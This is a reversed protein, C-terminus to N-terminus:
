ILLSKHEAIITMMQQLAIDESQQQQTFNEIDILKGSYDMNYEVLMDQILTIQNTIIVPLTKKEILKKFYYSLCKIHADRNYFTIMPMFVLYDYENESSINECLIKEMKWLIGGNFFHYKNLVQMYENNSLTEFRSIFKDLWEDMNQLKNGYDYGWEGTIVGINCIKFM